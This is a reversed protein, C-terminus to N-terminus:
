KLFNKQQQRYQQPSLGFKKRFVAAFYGRNAFGVQHAITEICLPQTVLLQRAVELRHDNLYQFPTTGFVRKFGQKLASINLSAQRALEILSPPHDLQQILIDKAHYIREIESPQMPVAMPDPVTPQFQAFAIALLEWAKGQLYMRKLLGDYPCQLIQQLVQRMGPTMPRYCNYPRHKGELTRQLELPIQDLQAGTLHGFLTLPEFDLYIRHFPEGAQWLETERFGSCACFNYHGVTEVMETTLGHLTTQVKGSLHFVLSADSKPEGEGGIHLLDIPVEWESISLKLGPQLPTDCQWFRGIHPFVAQDIFDTETDPCSAQGNHESEQWLSEFTDPTLIFPM